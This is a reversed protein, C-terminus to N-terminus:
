DLMADLQRHWGVRVGEGHGYGMAEATFQARTEDLPWKAVWREVIWLSPEARKHISHEAATKTM